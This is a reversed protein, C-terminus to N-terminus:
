EGPEVRRLDPRAGLRGRAEKTLSAERINLQELHLPRVRVDVPLDELCGPFRGQQQIGVVVDLGRAVLLGPRTCGELRDLSLTRGIVAGAEVAAAGRVVLRADDNVGRRDLGPALSTTPERQVDLDDDLALLLDPRGM